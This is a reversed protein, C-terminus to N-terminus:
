FVFDLVFWIFMYSNIKAEVSMMQRKYQVLYFMANNTQTWKLWALYVLYFKKEHESCSLEKWMFKNHTLKKLM